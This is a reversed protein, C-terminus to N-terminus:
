FITQRRGIEHNNNYIKGRSARGEIEFYHIDGQLFIM